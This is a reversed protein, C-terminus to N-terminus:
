PIRKAQARTSENATNLDYLQNLLEKGIGLTVDLLDKENHPAKDFNNYTNIFFILGQFLKEDLIDHYRLSTAVAVFSLNDTGVILGAQRALLTMQNLVENTVFDLDSSNQATVFKNRQDSKNQSEDLSIASNTAISTARLFPTSDLYTSFASMAAMLLMGVVLMLAQRVETPLSLWASLYFLSGAVGGLLLVILLIDKDRIM